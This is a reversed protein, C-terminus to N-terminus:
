RPPLITLSATVRTGPLDQARRPFRLTDLTGEAWSALRDQYHHSLPNGSQRGPYTGWGRTEAGLEVVMRWSAGFASGTSPNLTSPGGQVPIRRASLAPIRLLHNVNATAVRDWQWRADDPAGFRQKTGALAAELANCVLDDRREVVTTRRDDWWASASDSALEALIQDAPRESANDGLEDWTQSDLQRMAAEFLVARNNARTYTRSWEGLLAAAERCEARSSRREAARLFVPVFIDARASGPDTQMRAMLEPTMPAATRLLENIRLARWPSFWATGLYAPEVNPDVPQQNASALFGQSPDVAGPYRALPWDGQWDNATHSGDRIVDGRGDGGRIPFRGTSRIGIHGGRDAVLMNQAPAAYDSTAARFGEVSKAKALQGFAGLTAPTELVTWRLSLWRTGSRRLPGRHSYLVTDVAIVSGHPGRYREVRREIPKWAGDVMYRTPRATDDVTEVFYDLVDAQTNTFTWAIDRNFGIIVSPAGPITVGYVDLVGPVTLQVEYWISPLTLELHPDGALLAAGAATRRPAVAWNDSGLADGARAADSPSRGGRAGGLTALLAAAASDPKGPPPLPMFDFRPRAQGNPQIPEQIPSRAPFLADAAAGGVRARTAIRELDDEYALTRGMRNLLHLTNMATWREPAIGLLRFELPVEAPSMADIYGNVGAAFAEAAVRAPTGPPLAALDREAARPMGLERTERDAALLRRGGIEALRGSAALTQAELQFLRDRAVVYGLARYADAESEAFIHPVARDDYLVTVPARTGPVTAESSRPLDASAPLAWVGTAPDVLPGLPPVPGLGRGCLWIMMILVLAAAAVRGMARARTPRRPAVTGSM